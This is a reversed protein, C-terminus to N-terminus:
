FRAGDPPDLVGVVVTLCLCLVSIGDVRNSASLSARQIPSLRPPLRRILSGQSGRSRAVM